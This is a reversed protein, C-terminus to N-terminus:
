TSALDAALQAYDLHSLSAERMWRNFASFVEIISVRSTVIVNGATQNALARFWDTGVERV